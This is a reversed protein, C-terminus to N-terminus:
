NLALESSDLIEASSASSTHTNVDDMVISKTAIIMIEEVKLGVPHHPILVEFAAVSFLHDIDNLDYLDYLDYLVISVLLHLSSELIEESLNIFTFVIIQFSIFPTSGGTDSFVRSCKFYM